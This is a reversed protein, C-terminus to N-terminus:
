RYQAQVRPADVLQRSTPARGEPPKLTLSGLIKSNPSLQPVSSMSAGYVAREVVSLMRMCRSLRPRMKICGGDSFDEAGEGRSARAPRPNPLPAREMSNAREKSIGEGQGREGSRRRPSLSDVAAKTTTVLHAGSRANRTFGRSWSSACPCLPWSNNRSLWVRNTRIWNERDNKARPNLTGM